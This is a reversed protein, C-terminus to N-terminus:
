TKRCIINEKDVRFRRSYDSLIENKRSFPGHSIVKKQFVTYIIISLKYWDHVCVCVCVCVCVEGHLLVSLSSSNVQPLLMCAKYLCVCVHV